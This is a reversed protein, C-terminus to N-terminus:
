LQWLIGERNKKSFYQFIALLTIVFAVTTTSINISALGWQYVGALHHTEWFYLEIFTAIHINIAVFFALLYMRAILSYPKKSVLHAQRITYIVFGEFAAIGLDFALLVWVKYSPGDIGFFLPGYQFTVLTIMFVTALIVFFVSVTASSRNRIFQYGKFLIFAVVCDFVAFGICWLMFISQSTNPGIFSNVLVKYKILIGSILVVLTQTILSSSNQRLKLALLAFICLTFFDGVWLYELLTDLIETM